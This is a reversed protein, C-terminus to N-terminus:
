QKYQGSVHESIFSFNTITEVFFLCRLLHMLKDDRSYRSQLIAVVVANDCCCRVHSGKWHKGSVMGAIVIPVLELFAIPHSSAAQVLKLQFWHSGFYVGCEWSMSADSTVTFIPTSSGVASMLSIGNWRKLFMHWWTLDFRFEENLRIPHAPNKRTKSLVIMFHLFSRGPKVVVSAHQLQGILSDLDHKTCMKRHQWSSILHPLRDLKERPLSITLETTDLFFGLYELSMCPGQCKDDALSIGLLECIGRIIDCNIQCQIQGARSLTIYDNLYHLLHSM